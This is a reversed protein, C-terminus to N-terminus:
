TNSEPNKASDRMLYKYITDYEEQTITTTLIDEKTKDSNVHEMRLTIYSYEKISDITNNEVCKTFNKFLKFM